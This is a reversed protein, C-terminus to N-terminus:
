KKIQRVKDQATADANEIVAEAKKKAKEFRKVARRKKRAKAEMVKKIPRVNLEEMKARYEDVLEKPVPAEKRMNVMEDQVFWEPLNEDNFAYRNWASEILDRRQKKSQVMLAGLALEEENLKIKKPRSETAAEASALLEAEDASDDSSDDDDDDVDGDKKGHRARRKAKKGLFREATGGAAAAADAAAVRNEGLVRVGKQKYQLSLKDLDYDEDIDNAAGGGAGGDDVEQLNDKEFWLQVRQQRKTDKDRTDLDAILPNSKDSAGGAKRGGKAERTKRGTKTKRDRGQDEDDSLGLGLKGLRESDDSDGGDDDDDNADSDDDGAGAGDHYAGDDDIIAAGKVYRKYKPRFEDTENGNTEDLIMDPTQDQLDELEAMSTIQRLSFVENDEEQPGADGKIVMKLNLKENLKARAKQVKKKKRKGDKADEEEREAINRELEEFEMEEVEEKTLDEKKKTPEAEAAAADKKKADDEKSPYLEAHLHKWWTLLVRMDKRGLVKIDKCCERIEQTTKPHDRITVDDFVIEGVGQLANLGSASRMFESVTLEHRLSFDNESYGDPKIRNKEPHLLSIPKKTDLDLEEFVYKADLLKPDIREPAIYYQCVIFIEASEKRSASPKTAHVKKFLQKLVWLLANYDKSRFVKTVFWGGGRLFNTALKVANLTLCIQQYADYLWNKGVNPAGDHLVVDAKWSQLEKTLALKCKETTIDEVLSLCGPIAKIPYLDIGIVISSVPMNQKAM